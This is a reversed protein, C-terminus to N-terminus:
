GCGVCSYKWRYYVTRTPIFRSVVPHITWFTKIQCKPMLYVSINTNFLGNTEPRYGNVLLHVSEKIAHIRIGVAVIRVRGSACSFSVLPCNKHPACAKKMSIRERM